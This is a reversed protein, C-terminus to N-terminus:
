IRTMPSFPLDDPGAGGGPPDFRPDNAPDPKSAPATKEGPGDLMVIKADFGQLVCETSYRDQGDKDQWKRTQWSGAVFVKSGKHLYQEAISVLGDIFIVVTIWETRERQEGTSKDRWKDTVALRMNALRKGSQTTRIEPNAGLNGIFYCSNLSSM